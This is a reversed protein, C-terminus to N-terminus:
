TVETYEILFHRSRELRLHRYDTLVQGNKTSSLTSKGFIQFYLFINAAIFISHGYINCKRSQWPHVNSVIAGNIIDSFIFDLFFM